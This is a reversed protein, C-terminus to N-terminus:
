FKIFEDYDITHVRTDVFASSYVISELHKKFWMRCIKQVIVYVVNEISNLM